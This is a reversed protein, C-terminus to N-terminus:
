PHSVRLVSVILASQAVVLTVLTGITWRLASAYMRQMDVRLDDLKTTMELRLQEIGVKTALTPLITDLRTELATLRADM